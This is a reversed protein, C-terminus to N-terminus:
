EKPSIPSQVHCSSDNEDLCDKVGHGEIKEGYQNGGFPNEFFDLIELAVIQPSAWAM